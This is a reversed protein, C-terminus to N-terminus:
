RQGGEYATEYMWVWFERTDGPFVQQEAYM